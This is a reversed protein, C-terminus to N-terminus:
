RGGGLVLSEVEALARALRGDREGSDDAAMRAVAVLVAAESVSRWVTEGSAPDPYGERFGRLASWEMTACEGNAEALECFRDALM